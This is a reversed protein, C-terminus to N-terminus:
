RSFNGQLEAQDLIHGEMTELIQGRNAGSPLDLETDLAYLRFYYGHTSGQPPCPGEYHTNGYSNRGHVGVQDIREEQEVGLPLQTAYSPIDYLVWHSFVGSPADPDDCLLAYSQTGEPKASWELPPSLNEGECTYRDPIRGGAEFAKSRLILSM